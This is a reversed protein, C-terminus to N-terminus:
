WLPQNLDADVAFVKDPRAGFILMEKFGRYTILNGNVIPASLSNLGRSQNDARVKYLLTLTSVNAKDLLRESRAWGNRQPGGGRMPWDAASALVGSVTAAVALVWFSRYKM